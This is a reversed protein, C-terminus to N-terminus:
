RGPEKICIGLQEGKRVLFADKLKGIYAFPEEPYVPVFLSSVAAQKPILTFEPMGAGLRKAPIRTVLGFGGDVPVLIGLDQYTNGCTVRLRCVVDGSLRCICSIRYYLGQRRIEATGMTQNGFRVEYCGDM